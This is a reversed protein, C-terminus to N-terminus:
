KLETKSSKVVLGLDILQVQSNKNQMINKPKIDRHM